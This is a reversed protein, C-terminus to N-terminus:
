SMGSNMSGRTSCIQLLRHLQVAHSPESRRHIADASTSIEQKRQEPYKHFLAPPTLSQKNASSRRQQHINPATTSTTRNM